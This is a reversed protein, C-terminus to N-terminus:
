PTPTTLGAKKRVRKKKEPRQEPTKAQYGIITASLIAAALTWSESLPRAPYCYAEVLRRASLPDVTVPVGNVLGHNGGLLGLRITELLDEVHYAGEEPLGISGGDVRSYRGKLVRAFIEGIGVKQSPTGCKTQLEAIQPLGLKFLYAGDAFELEVFPVPYDARGEAM